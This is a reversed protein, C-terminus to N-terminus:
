FINHIFEVPIVFFKEDVLSSVFADFLVLVVQLVM